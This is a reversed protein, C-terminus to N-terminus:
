CSYNCGLICPPALNMLIMILFRNLAGLGYKGRTGSLRSLNDRESCLSFDIQPSHHARSGYSSFCASQIFTGHDYIATAIRAEKGLGLLPFQKSAPAWTSEISSLVDENLPATHNGYIRGLPVGEATSLLIALIGGGATNTREVVQYLTSQLNAPLLDVANSM